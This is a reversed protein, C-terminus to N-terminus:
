GDTKEKGKGKGTGTMDAVVWELLVERKGPVYLAETTWAQRALEVKDTSSMGPTKLARILTASSTLADAATTTPTPKSVM